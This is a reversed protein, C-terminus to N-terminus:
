RQEYKPNRYGLDVMMGYTIAFIVNPSNPESENPSITKQQEFFKLVQRVVYRTDTQVRYAQIVTERFQVMDDQHQALYDAIKEKGIIAGFHCFGLIEPSLLAIKRCSEMYKEFNFAPPMSTPMSVPITERCLAGCSEGSFCFVPKNNQFLTPACHDDTHGPTTILHLQYGDALKLPLPVDKEVITYANEPLRNMEGVSNGYTTKAGIMHTEANQLKHYTDKPVFIKFNQYQESFKQWLRTVGGAHDFHYHTVVIGLVKDYPIGIKNLNKLLTEVDNSTGVDMLLCTTGDWYFFISTQGKKKFQITDALYVHEAIQGPTTLYTM